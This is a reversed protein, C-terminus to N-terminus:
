GEKEMIARFRPALYQLLLATITEDTLELQVDDDVIQVTIGPSPDDSVGFTLGDRLIDATLGLVFAALSDPRVPAVEKAIEDHTATGAPLLVRLPQNPDDPIAKQSVELIFEELFKRDKLTLGVLRKLKKTFEDYCAERVRLRVDRSALRLAQNGNEIVKEREEKANTIISEAETRANDLISMAEKRANGVLREAEIEGSAVGEQHLKNILEQVGSSQQNNDPM